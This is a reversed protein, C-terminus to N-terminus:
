VAPAAPLTTAGEFFEWEFVHRRYPADQRALARGVVIGAMRDFVNSVGYHSIAEGANQAEAITGMSIIELDEPVRVGLKSAAFALNQALHASMAIVATPRDKRMLLDLCFAYTDARSAGASRVLNQASPDDGWARAADLFARTRAAHPHTSDQSRTRTLMAVSPHRTRLRRYAKTIAPLASSSIVDFGEADLVDSLAVIEIGSRALTRTREIGDAQHDVGSVLAADSAYGTLFAYWTDDTLVVTSLNKPLAATRVARTLAHGWPDSITGLALVIANSKGTRMARAYRNPTYGLKKAAARVKRKTAESGSSQSGDRGSLVFSATALSVGAASAVDKLTVAKKKTLRDAPAEVPTVPSARSALLDVSANDATMWRGGGAIGRPARAETGRM